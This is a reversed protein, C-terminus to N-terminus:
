QIEMYKVTSKWTINTSIAGIVRVDITQAVTDANLTVNWSAESEIEALSVTSGQQTVNNTGRYFLGERHYFNRGVDSAAEAVVQAEVFFVKGTAVAISMLDNTTENTTTLTHYEYTYQDFLAAYDVAGEKWRWVIVGGVSIEIEDPLLRIHTNTDGLHRIYEGVKINDGFNQTGTWTNVVNTKGYNNTSHDGWGHATHWLTTDTSSIPLRVYPVEGSSFFTSANGNTGGSADFAQGNLSQVIEASDQFLNTGISATADGYKSYLWNVTGDDNTDEIQYDAGVFESREFNLVGEDIFVASQGGGQNCIIRCNRLTIEDQGNAAVWSGTVHPLGLSGVGDIVSGDHMVIVTGPDDTSDILTSYPGAGMLVANSALDMAGSGIFYGAPVHVVDGAVENALANTLGAWGVGYLTKGVKNSGDIYVQNTTWIPDVEIQIASSAKAVTDTYTADNTYVIVNTSTAAWNTWDAADTAGQDWVNSRSFVYVVGGSNSDVWDWANSWNDYQNTYSLMFAIGNSNAQVWVYCVGSTSGLIDAVSFGSDEIFFGTVGDYVVVRADVVPRVRTITGPHSPQAYASFSMCVVLWVLFAIRKM